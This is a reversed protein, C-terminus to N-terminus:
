IEQHIIRNLITSILQERKELLQLTLRKEQRSLQDLEVIQKQTSLSPISVPLEELVTKSIMKQATGTAFSEFYIQADKQSLYWNLYHPSVQKPKKIRIRLLPAAVLTNDIDELLIAASTDNGRSRFILDHKCARHKEKIESIDVQMLDLTQVHNDENLDKMQIVSTAGNEAVEIRTRFSYGVFVNAFDKLKSTM